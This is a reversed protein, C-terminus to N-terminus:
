AHEEEQVRGVEIAYELVEQPRQQLPTVANLHQDVDFLATRDLPRAEDKVPELGFVGIAKCGSERGLAAIAPEPARGRPPEREIPEAEELRLELM